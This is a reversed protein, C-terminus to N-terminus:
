THMVSSCRSDLRCFRFNIRDELKLYVQRAFKCGCATFNVRDLGICIPHYVQNHTAAMVAPVYCKNVVTTNSASLSVNM